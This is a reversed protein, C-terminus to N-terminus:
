RQFNWLNVIAPVYAKIIALGQTTAINTFDYEVAAVYSGVTINDDIQDLETTEGSKRKRERKKPSRPLVVEYLFRLLRDQNAM